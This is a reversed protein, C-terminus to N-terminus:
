FIFKFAYNIAFQFIFALGAVMGVYKAVKKDLNDLRVDHKDITGTNRATSGNLEKLHGDINALHINVENIKEIINDYKTM